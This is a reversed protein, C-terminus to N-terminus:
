DSPSVVLWLAKLKPFEPKVMVKETSEIKEAPISGPFPDEAKM